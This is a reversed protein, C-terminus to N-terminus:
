RSQQPRREPTSPVPRLLQCRRPHECRTTPPKPIASAAPRAVARAWSRCTHSPWLITVLKARDNETGIPIRWIFSFPTLFYISGGRYLPMGLALKPAAGPRLETLSWANKERAKSECGVPGRSGSQAAHSRSRASETEPQPTRVMMTMPNWWQPVLRSRCMSPLWGAAWSCMGSIIGLGASSRASRRVAAACPFVQSIMLCGSFESACTARAAASCPAGASRKTQIRRGNTRPHQGGV